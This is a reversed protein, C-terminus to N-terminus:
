CGKVFKRSVIQGNDLHVILIYIGPRLNRIDIQNNENKLDFSKVKAGTSNIIYGSLINIDHHSVILVECVPNPYVSVDFNTSLKPVDVTSLSDAPAVYGVTETGKQYGTLIAKQSYYTEFSHFESFYAVTGLGEAIMKVDSRYDAYYYNSGSIVMVDNPQLQNEYEWECRVLFNRDIEPSIGSNLDLIQSLPTQDPIEFNFSQVGYGIAKRGEISLYRQGFALEPAYDFGFNSLIPNPDSLFYGQSMNANARNYWYKKEPLQYIEDSVNLQIEAFVTDQGSGQNFGNSFPNNANSVFASDLLFTVQITSNNPNINLVEMRRISKERTSYFTGNQDQAGQIDTFYCFVDGVQFDFAEEPNLYMEGLGRSPISVLKLTDITRTWQSIGHNKSLYIEEGNSLEITKVSDTEGLIETQFIDTVNASVSNGQTDTQYAWSDGINANTQIFFTDPNQFSVVGNGPYAIQNELFDTKLQLCFPSCNCNELTDVDLTLRVDSSDGAESLDAAFVGILVTPNASSQYNLTENLYIPQWTQAMCVHVGSFCLLFLVFQKM